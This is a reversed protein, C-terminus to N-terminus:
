VVEVKFRLAGNWKLDDAPLADECDLAKIGSGKELVAVRKSMYREGVWINEIFLNRDIKTGKKSFDNTFLIDIVHTGKTFEYNVRVNQFEASEVTQELVKKGDVYVAMDPWGDAYSGKAKIVINKNEYTLIPSLCDLVGIGLGEYELTEKAYGTWFHISQEKEKLTVIIKAKKYDDIRFKTTVTRIEKDELIYKANDIVEKEKGDKEVAVEVYYTYKKNELNHISFKFELDGDTYKPLNTHDEFYLETFGEVPKSKVSIVLVIILAIIVFSFVYDWIHSKKKEGTKEQKEEVKNEEPLKEEESM